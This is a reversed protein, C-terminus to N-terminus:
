CLVYINIRLIYDSVEARQSTSVDHRVVDTLRSGFKIRDKVVAQILVFQAHFKISMDSYTYHSIIIVQEHFM